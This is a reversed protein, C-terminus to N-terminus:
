SPVRSIKMIKKLPIVAAKIPNLHPKLALVIRRKGDELKEVKYAENLIALVGKEVGASPEIVFPVIWENTDKNQIAM